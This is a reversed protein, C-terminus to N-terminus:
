YGFRKAKTKPKPATADALYGERSLDVEMGDEIPYVRAFDKVAKIFEEQYYDPPCVFVLPVGEPVDRKVPPADGL